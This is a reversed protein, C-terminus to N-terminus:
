LMSLSLKRTQFKTKASYFQLSYSLNEPHYQVCRVSLSSINRLSSVVSGEKGKM